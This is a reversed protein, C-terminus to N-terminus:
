SEGIAQSIPEALRARRELLTEGADELSLLELGVRHLLQFREKQLGVEPEVGGLPEHLADPLLGAAPPQRAPIGAARQRVVQALRQSSGTRREIEVRPGRDHQDDADVAGPLRRGAPLEGPPEAPLPMRDKETRAVRKPGRRDVLELAPAFPDAHRHHALAGPRIRRRHGEIGHLGRLGAPRLDQDHVGGAPEVRLRIEHRLQGLDLAHDATLARARRVFHEEDQVRGRALVADGLRPDEV